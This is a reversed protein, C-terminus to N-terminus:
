LGTQMNIHMNICGYAHRRWHKSMAFYVSASENEFKITGHLRRNNLEAVACAVATTQRYYKIRWFM